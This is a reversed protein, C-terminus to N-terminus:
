RADPTGQPRHPTVLESPLERLRRTLDSEAHPEHIREMEELFPTVDGTLWRKAAWIQAEDWDWWRLALLRRRVDSEFRYRLIHAPNGAIVAYPPVSKGVVAGAGIVAGDGVLVGSLVIAGIGIWVDNGITTTGKDIAEELNGKAPDFLRANFPFTSPRTMVHESGALVRAERHISCYAGVEIRAGQMYIHFTESGYGFTHRGLEVGRPVAPNDGTPIGLRSLANSIRQRRRLAM